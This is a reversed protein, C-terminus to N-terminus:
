SSVFRDRFARATLAFLDEDCNTLVALQCGMARLGALDGVEDFVLM